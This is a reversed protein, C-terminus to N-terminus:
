LQQAIRKAIDSMAEPSARYDFTMVDIMNSKPKM